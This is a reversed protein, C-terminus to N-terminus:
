PVQPPLLTLGRIRDLMWNKRVQPYEEGAHLTTVVARGIVLRGEPARGGGTRIGWVNHFMLPKGAACDQRDPGLYLGIHGRMWIFSFFPVGQELIHAERQPPTMEELSVLAGARAQQSSNRPLWIGFPAFLDHMAASCDRHELLGGWGYPQRMMGNGVMAVAVPTLPLPMRAAAGYSVHVLRIGAGGDAGRVPVRLVLGAADAKDVPFVAGTHATLVWRGEATRLPTDDAVVAAYMGTRYANMFGSDVYAVDRARVWGAALPTECLLWGGDSSAHVVFVPMGAWLASYQFYDFPYGEGARAPDRFFPEDDPAMRLSTNGTIIAPVALSPYEGTRCRQWLSETRAPPVPLLNAGWGKGDLTARLDAFMTHRPMSPARMDWAAFFRRLFFGTQREQEQLTLLPADPQPLARAYVMLDQELCDIDRVAPPAPFPPQVVRPACGGALLMCGLLVCVVRLSIM